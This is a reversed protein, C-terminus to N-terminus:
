AEVEVDDVTQLLQYLPALAKDTDEPYTPVRFGKFSRLSELVASESRKKLAHLRKIENKIGQRAFTILQTPEFSDYNKGVHRFTILQEPKWGWELLLTTATDRVANASSAVIIEGTSTTTKWKLSAKEGKRWPLIHLYITEIEEKLSHEFEM